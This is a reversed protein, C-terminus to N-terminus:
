PARGHPRGQTSHWTAPGAPCPRAIYIQCKKVISKVGGSLIEIEMFYSYTKHSAPPNRYYQSKEVTKEGRRFPFKQEEFYPATSFETHPHWLNWVDVRWRTTGTTYAAQSMITSGEETFHTEPPTRSFKSKIKPETVFCFAGSMSNKPRGIPWLSRFGEKLM